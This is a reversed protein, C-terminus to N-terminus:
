KNLIKIAREVPTNMSFFEKAKGLVDCVLGKNVSILVQHTYAEQTYIM